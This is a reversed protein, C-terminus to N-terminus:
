FTFIWGLYFECSRWPEIQSRSGREGYHFCLPDLVKIQSSLNAVCIIPLSIKKPESVTQQLKLVLILKSFLSVLNLIVFHQESRCFVNLDCM